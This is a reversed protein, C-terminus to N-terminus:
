SNTSGEIRTGPMGQSRNETSRACSGRGIARRWRQAGGGRGRVCSHMGRSGRDGGRMGERSRRLRRERPAHWLYVELRLANAQARWRSMPPDNTDCTLRQRLSFRRFSSARGLVLLCGSGGLRAPLVLRGDREERSAQHPKHDARHPPRPIRGVTHCAPQWTHWTGHNQTHTAQNSTHPSERALATLSPGWACQM